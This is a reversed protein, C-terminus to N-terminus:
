CNTLSPSSYSDNTRSIPETKRYFKSLVLEVDEAQTPGNLQYLKATFTKLIEERDQPTTTKKPPFIYVDCIPLSDDASIIQNFGGGRWPNNKLNIKEFQQSTNFTHNVSTM